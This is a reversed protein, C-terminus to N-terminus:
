RKVSAKKKFKVIGKMKNNELMKRTTEFFIICMVSFVIQLVNWVVPNISDFLIRPVILVLPAAFGIIWRNINFKEHVINALKVGGLVLAFMGIIWFLTRM